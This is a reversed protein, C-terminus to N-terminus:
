NGNISRCTIWVIKLSLCAEWRLLVKPLAGCLGKKSSAIKSVMSAPSIASFLIGIKGSSIALRWFIQSLNIGCSLECGRNWRGKKWKVPSLNQCRSNISPAFTAKVCEYEGLFTTARWFLTPKTHIFSGIQFAKDFGCSRASIRVKRSWWVKPLTREWLVMVIASSGTDGVVRFLTRM